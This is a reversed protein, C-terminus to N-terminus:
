HLQLLKLSKKAIAVILWNHAELWELHELYPNMGQFPSLM